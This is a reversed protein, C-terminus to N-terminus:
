IKRPSEPLRGRMFITRAYEPPSSVETAMPQSCSFYLASITANQESTPWCSSKSAAAFLKNIDIRGDIFISEAGTVEGKVFLTRGIHAQDMPSTAPKVPTYNNTPAATPTYKQDPSQLM